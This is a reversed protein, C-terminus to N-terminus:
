KIKIPVYIELQSYGMAKQIKQSTIVHFLDYHGDREDLEFSKSNHIWDKVEKFVREGDEDNGDISVASAYIGGEFDIVEFECDINVNDPIAYFWVLAQKSRDYMMFDRAFWKDTREKDYTSWWKEFRMLTGNEIFPNEDHSYGSTVMRCKPLEVIRIGSM